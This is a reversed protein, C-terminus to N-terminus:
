VWAKIRIRWSAATIGATSGTSKNPLEIGSQGVLYRVDTTNAADVILQLGVPAGGNRNVVPGVQVQDGISYGIDATTCEMFAQIMFPAAGLGHAITASTGNSPVALASSTFKTLPTAWQPNAGAGQTRLYQGNTGAGLRTWASANRYLLDGQAASGVLDLVQTITLQEVPGTSATTRGLIRATAMTLTSLTSYPMYEACRVVGAAYGIFLAYDGAVTTINAGGPLVLSSGHTITLADTFRVWRWHGQSLTIATIGTTGTVDVVNGTATELNITAASPIDSGQETDIRGDKALM